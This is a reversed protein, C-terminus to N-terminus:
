CGPFDRLLWSISMSGFEPVVQEGLGGFASNPNGYSSLWWTETLERM